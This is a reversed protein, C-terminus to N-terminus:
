RPRQRQSKSISKWRRKINSALVPDQRARAALMERKLKHYSALRTRALEGADVAALVACQPETDHQCDRFRCREALRAIDSFAVDLGVEADVIGLERMGPTDILVGRGPVVLLARRTTTHKGKAEFGISRTDQVEQGLLRNTLSSKGVGSSGIFAVTKGPSWHSELADIGVGTHASARVVPVAQAIAEIEEVLPAPDAVLDIKNLVVIPDAGSEWVAVLYRELRRPSLEQNASTVIFTTDVNAAIVQVAADSDAARRKLITRRDLVHQITARDGHQSVAVWDGTTPRDLAQRHLRGALEGLASACGVLEYLGHSEAAVRAPVLRSADELMEFQTSFYPFYGLEELTPM